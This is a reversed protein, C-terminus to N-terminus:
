ATKAPSPFFPRPVVTRAHTPYETFGPGPRKEEGGCFRGPFSAIENGSRCQQILVIVDNLVIAKPTHASELALTFSPLQFQFRATNWYACSQESDPRRRVRKECM